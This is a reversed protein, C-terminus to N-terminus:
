TYDQRDDVTGPLWHLTPSDPPFAPRATLWLWGQLGEHEAGLTGDSGVAKVM